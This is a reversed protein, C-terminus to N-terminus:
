PSNAPAPEVAARKNSTCCCPCMGSCELPRKIPANLAIVGFEFLAGVRNTPRLKSQVVPANFVGRLPKFSAYPLFSRLQIYSRVRVCRLIGRIYLSLKTAHRVVHYAVYQMYPYDVLTRVLALEPSTDSEDAFQYSFTWTLAAPNESAMVAFNTSFLMAVVTTWDFFGRSLAM